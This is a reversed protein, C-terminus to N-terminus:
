LKMVEYGNEVSYVVKKVGCFRLAGECMPCPKSMRLQGQSNVRVVYVTSGETRKREVNLIAGLEAHLSAHEPIHKFKAGFRNFGSKNSSTNVVTSGKVLVAGHKFRPFDSQNSLRKALQLHRKTKNSPMYRDTPTDM